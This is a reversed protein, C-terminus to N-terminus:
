AEVGAPQPDAAKIWNEIAQDEGWGTATIGHLQIEVLSRLPAVIPYSGNGEIVANAMTERREAATRRALAEALTKADNAM